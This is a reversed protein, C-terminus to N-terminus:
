DVRLFTVCDVDLGAGAGTRTRLAFRANVIDDSVDEEAALTGADVTFWGPGFFGGAERAKTALETGSVTRDLVASTKGVDVTVHQLVVGTVVEVVVVMMLARSVLDQLTTGNSDAAMAAASSSPLILGLLGGLWSDNSQQQQPNLRLRCSVAYRGRRLEKRGRVQIPTNSPFRLATAFTANPDEIEQPSLAKRDEESEEHAEEKEKVPRKKSDEKPHHPHNHHSSALPGVTMKVAAVSSFKPRLAFYRDRPHAYEEEDDEETVTAVRLGHMSRPLTERRTMSRWLGRARVLRAGWKCTLSFTGLAHISDLAYLVRLMVEDPMDQMQLPGERKKTGANDAADADMVIRTVAAAGNGNGNGNGNLQDVLTGGGGSNDAGGQRKMPSDVVWSSASDRNRRGNGSLNLSRRLNLQPSLEMGSIIRMFEMPMHSDRAEVQQQAGENDPRPSEGPALQPSQLQGEMQSSGQSAAQAAASSTSTPDLASLLAASMAAATAAM